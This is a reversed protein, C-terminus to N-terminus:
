RNRFSPVHLPAADYSEANSSPMALTRGHRSAPSNGLIMNWQGSKGSARRCATGRIFYPPRGRRQADDTAGGGPERDRAGTGCAKCLPPCPRRWKAGLDPRLPRAFDELAVTEAREPGDKPKSSAPYSPVPHQLAGAGRSVLPEARYATLPPALRGSYGLLLLIILAVSSPPLPDKLRVRACTSTPLPLPTRTGRRSFSPQVPPTVAM